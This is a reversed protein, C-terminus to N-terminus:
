TTVAVDVLANLHDALLERYTCPAFRRGAAVADFAAQARSAAWADLLAEVGDAWVTADVPDVRRATSVGRVAEDLESSLSVVVPRGALVAEFATNGLPENGHSPVLLVGADTLHLWVEPQLGHPRVRGTPVATCSSNSRPRFMRNSRTPATKGPYSHNSRSRLWVALVAVQAGKSPLLRGFFLLRAVGDITPRAPRPQVPSSRVSSPQAPSPQGRGPVGNYLM